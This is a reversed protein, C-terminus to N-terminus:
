VCEWRLGENFRVGKCVPGFKPKANNADKTKKNKGLKKKPAKSAETQVNNMEVVFEAYYEFKNSKMNKRNKWMKGIAAAVVPFNDMGKLQLM